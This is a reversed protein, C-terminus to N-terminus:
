DNLFFSSPLTLEQNFIRASGISNEEEQFFPTFLHVDSTLLEEAAAMKFHM